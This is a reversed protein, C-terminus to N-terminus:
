PIQAPQSARDGAFAWFKMVLFSFLPVLVVIFAFGVLYHLGYHDASWSLLLTLGLSLMSALFFRAYRTISLSAKFTFWSNAAYSFVNAVCFAIMNSLTVDLRLGEVGLVLVCGHIATNAVGILAFSLLQTHRRVLASLM